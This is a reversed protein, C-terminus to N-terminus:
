VRASQGDVTRAGARLCGGSRNSPCGRRYVERIQKMDSLPQIVHRQLPRDGAAGAASRCPTRRVHPKNAPESGQPWSAPATPPQASAAPSTDLIRMGIPMPSPARTPSAMCTRRDNTSPTRTGQRHATSCATSASPRGRVAAWRKVAFREVTLRHHQFTGRLSTMSTCSPSSSRRVEPPCRGDAPSAPERHAIPTASSALTTSERRQRSIPDAEESFNCPNTTRGDFWGNCRVCDGCPFQLLM